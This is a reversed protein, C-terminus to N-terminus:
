LLSYTSPTIYCHLTIYYNGCYVVKRRGFPSIFDLEKGIINDHIFDSLKAGHDVSQDTVNASINEKDVPPPTYSAEKSKYAESLDYFKRHSNSGM